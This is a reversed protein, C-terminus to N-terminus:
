NSTYIQKLNNMKKWEEPLRILSKESEFGNYKLLEHYLGRRKKSNFVTKGAASLISTLLKGKYEKFNNLFGKNFVAEFATICPTEYKNFLGPSLFLYPREMFLLNMKM